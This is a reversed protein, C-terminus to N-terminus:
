YYAIVRAVKSLLSADRRQSGQLNLFVIEESGHLDPGDIEDSGVFEQVVGQTRLAAAFGLAYPKDKGGTFVAVRPLARSSLGSAVPADQGIAERRHVDEIIAHPM